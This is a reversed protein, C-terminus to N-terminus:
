GSGKRDKGPKTDKDEDDDDDDDDDEDGMSDQDLFDENLGLYYQLAEPILVDDLDEALNM